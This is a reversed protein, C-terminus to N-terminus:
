LVRVQDATLGADFVRLNSIFGELGKGTGDHGVYVEDPYTTIAAITARGVEVGDRYVIGDAGDYVFVLREVSTTSWGTTAIATNNYWVTLADAASSLFEAAFVTQGASFVCQNSTTIHFRRSVDIAITMADPIPFNGEYEINIQDGLISMPGPYSGITGIPNTTEELCTYWVHLNNTAVGVYSITGFATANYIRLAASTGVMTATLTVFWWQVSNDDVFSKITATGGSPTDLVGTTLNVDVYARVITDFLAVRAFGRGGDRIFTMGTVTANNTITGANEIYHEGNVTNESLGMDDQPTGFPGIFDGAALNLNVKTWTSDHLDAGDEIVNSRGRAIYLGDRMFVPEGSWAMTINGYYNEHTRFNVGPPDQDNEGGKFEAYGGGNFGFHHKWPAVMMPPTVLPSGVNDALDSIANDINAKYTSADQTTYDPKPGTLVTM